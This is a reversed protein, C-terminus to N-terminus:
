AAPSAIPITPSAPTLAFAYYSLINTPMIKIRMKASAKASYPSM